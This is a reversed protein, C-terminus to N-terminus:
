LKRCRKDLEPPYYVRYLHLGRAKATKLAKKRDLANIIAVMKEPHLNKAHMDLVTGVINRVMQKLFGTGSIRFELINSSKIEWYAEFITRITNKVETGSNQFSKFDHEGIIYKSCDNLYNVDLKSNTWFVFRNKLANPYKSNLIFYKYTKHTATYIAHFDEPAVYLKKVSITNPLLSCLANALNYHKIDRSIDFHVVQDQAHVGADTRGSAVCTIPEDFIRSLICELVGQITVQKSTQKQWGHFESGDYAIHLRIRM